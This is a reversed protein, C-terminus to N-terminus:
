STRDLVDPRTISLALGDEARMCKGVHVTRIEGYEGVCHNGPEGQFAYSGGTHLDDMVPLNLADTSYELNHQRQTCDIRRLYQHLRTYAVFSLQLAKSNWPYLMERSHPLVKLIM